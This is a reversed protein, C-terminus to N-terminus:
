CLSVFFVTAKSKAKNVKAVKSLMAWHYELLHVNIAYGGQM